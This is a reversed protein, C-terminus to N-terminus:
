KTHLGNSGDMTQESDIAKWCSYDLFAETKNRKGMLECSAVDGKEILAYM